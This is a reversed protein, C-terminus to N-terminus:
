GNYTAFAKTQASGVGFHYTARPALGQLNVVRMSSVVDKVKEGLRAADLAYQL